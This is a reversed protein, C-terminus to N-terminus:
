CGKIKRDKEIKRFRSTHISGLFDPLNTPLLEDRKQQQLVPIVRQGQRGHSCRLIGCAQLTPIKPPLKRARPAPGNPHIYDILRSPAIHETATLDAAAGDIKDTPTFNEITRRRSAVSAREIQGRRVGRRGWPCKCTRRRRPLSDYIAQKTTLMCCRQRARIAKKKKWSWGVALFFAIKGRCDVCVASVYYVHVSPLVMAVISPSCM